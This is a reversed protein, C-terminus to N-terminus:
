RLRSQSGPRSRLFVTAGSQSIGLSFVLTGAANMPVVANSERYVFANAEPDHTLYFPWFDRRRLVLVDQTM